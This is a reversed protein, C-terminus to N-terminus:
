ISQSPTRKASQDVQPTPHPHKQWRRHRESICLPPATPPVLATWGSSDVDRTSSDLVQYTTRGMEGSVVTSGTSVSSRLLIKWVAKIASLDAHTWPHPNNHLENSWHM